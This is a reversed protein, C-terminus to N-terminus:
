ARNPYRASTNARPDPDVPGAPPANGPDEYEDLDGPDEDGAMAALYAQDRDPGCPM